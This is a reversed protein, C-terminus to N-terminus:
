KKREIGPGSEALRGEGGSITVSVPPGDAEYRLSGGDIKCDAFRVLRTEKGVVFSSNEITCKAFDFYTGSVDALNVLTENELRLPPTAVTRGKQRVLGDAVAKTDFVISLKCNEYRNGEFRAVGTRTTYIVSGGGYRNNRFTYNHARGWTVVSKEFENGEFVLESGACVVLDGGRNGRFRNNRFVVDQMLESGDEFDVGYAPATGGNEEFRNNEILWKQGGCYAMGLRRNRALVNDHFHVNTSPRFKTIRAVWGGKVAGAHAPEDSVEPQNLELHLWRAGPPVEVARYQLCKARALFKKQEDYFYAQYVRGKIFPYGLYGGMYGLEFRGEAKALDLPEITRTKTPDAIKAGTESLGGSELQKVYISHLIRTLLEDRSRTGNVTSAVGDGTMEVATIHDVELQDGSIFRIGQGWEHTGPETKYDHADRDGVLTGNTLRVNQAGAVIDILSYKPLGNPRIKLTAGNLDIVTNQHDIEVPMTEHILYTGAPFVIRNAGITKAHQLAANLGKSTAEAETGDNRIGFKALDLTYVQSFKALDATAKPTNTLVVSPIIQEGVLNSASLEAGQSAAPLWDFTEAAAAPLVALACFLIVTVRGAWRVAVTRLSM